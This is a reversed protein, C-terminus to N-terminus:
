RERLFQQYERRLAEGPDQAAQKQFDEFEAQLESKGQLKLRQKKTLSGEKLPTPDKRKLSLQYIRADVRALDRLLKDVERNGTDKGRGVPKGDKGPIQNFENLRSNLKHSKQLLTYIENSVPDIPDVKVGSASAWKEWGARGSRLSGETTLQQLLVPFGPLSKALYDTKGYWGWVKKGTRRDVIQKVGLTDQVPKPLKRALGILAGSAAVRPYDEDQLPKRFFFSQNQYLEVPNKVFPTVMGFGFKALEDAYAGANKSTPLENLLNVPLAADLAVKDGGIITGFPVARQKWEPLDKQWDGSLGSTYAVQQRAKELTAFKGPKKVLTKAQLPLARASFTYFPAVRRAVKREFETVDGYDIHHELSHDAAKQPSLGRDLADKFTALRMWDERNQLVAQDVARGAERVRGKGRVKKVVADGTGLMFDELERARQGSRIVGHELAMNLFDDVNVREGNIRVTQRTPKVGHLKGRQAADRRTLRGLAKASTGANAPMKWGRQGQYGMWADGVANRIHFGPTATAITKWKGQVKDAAVGGITRNAAIRKTSAEVSADDLVVYTGNRGEGKAARVIEAADTKPDLRRLAYEGSDAKAHYVSKGDPIRVHEEGDTVRVKPLRDGMKVLDRNLRSKAVRQAVGLGYNATVLPVNTSFKYEGDANKLVLRRKDERRKTSGKSVSVTQGKSEGRMLDERMHPFYSRVEGPKPKKGVEGIVVGSQRQQRLWGKYESRMRHAIPALHDPLDKIKGREIADIVREYDDQSLERQYFRARDTAERAIKGRTARAKREAARMGEYAGKEAGQPTVRPNVAGVASKAAQPPKVRLKRGVAATGRRVGPVERGAFKLVVGSGEPAKAAAKKAAARAVTQQGAESMGAKAAKSAASAAASKAAKEAVSGAGATAYTVPDLAVDLAFRAAGAPVSKSDGVLVRGPTDGKNTVLAKAAAKQGEVSLPNGKGAKLGEGVARAPRLTENLIKLAGAEARDVKVPRPALRGKEDTTINTDPGTLIKNLTSKKRLLPRAPAPSQAITTRVASKVAQRQGEREVAKVIKRRERNTKGHKVVTVQTATTGKEVAKVAKPQVKKVPKPRPRLPDKRVTGASVNGGVKKPKSKPKLPKGAGSIAAGVSNKKAM